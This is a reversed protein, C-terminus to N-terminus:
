MQDDAVIWEVIANIFTECSYARTPLTPDEQSADRGGNV